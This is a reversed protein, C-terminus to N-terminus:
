YFIETNIKNESVKQNLLQRRIDMVFKIPGCIFFRKSKLLSLKSKISMFSIRKFSAVHKNKIKQNTLFYHVRLNKNKDSIKNLKNYFATSSKTKNSYFLDISINKILGNKVYNKIISYFPAVGIGAALFVIERDNEEPFFYGMPGELVVKSGIKLNHLATSFKGMKKVAISLFKDSPISSITYPKGELISKNRLYVVVYQGPIFSIRGSKKLRFKLTIINEAEKKKSILVCDFKRKKEPM